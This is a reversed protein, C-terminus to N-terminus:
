GSTTREAGKAALEEAAQKKNRLLMKALTQSPLRSHHGVADWNSDMARQAHRTVFEASQLIKEKEDLAKEMKAIRPKDLVPELRSDPFNKLYNLEARVGHMKDVEAAAIDLANM